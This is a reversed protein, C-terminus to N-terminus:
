VEEMRSAANVYFGEKYNEFLQSILKAEEGRQDVQRDASVAQGGIATLLLYQWKKRLLKYPLEGSAM